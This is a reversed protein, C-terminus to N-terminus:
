TSPETQLSRFWFLTLGLALGPFVWYHLVRFRHLSMPDVQGRLPGLYGTVSALFTVILLFSVALTQVLGAFPHQRGRVLAVGMGFPVSNWAFIVLGHGSWKHVSASFGTSRMLGTAVLTVLITAILASLSRAFRRAAKPWKRSLLWGVAVTIPFWVLPMADNM